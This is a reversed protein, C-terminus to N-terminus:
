RHGSSFDPRAVDTVVWPKKLQARRTLGIPRLRALPQGITDGKLVDVSAIREWVFDLEVLLNCAVVLAM